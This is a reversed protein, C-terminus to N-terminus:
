RLEGTSSFSFREAVTKGSALYARIAERNGGAREAAV